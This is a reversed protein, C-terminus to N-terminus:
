GNDISDVGMLCRLEQFVIFYRCFITRNILDRNIPTFMLLLRQNEQVTSHNQRLVFHGHGGMAICMWLNKVAIFYGLMCAFFLAFVLAIILGVKLQKDHGM